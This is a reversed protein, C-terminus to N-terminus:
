QFSFYLFIIFDIRGIESAIVHEYTSYIPKQSCFEFKLCTRPKLAMINLAIM